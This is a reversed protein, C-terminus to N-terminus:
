FLRTQIRMELCLPKFSRNDTFSTVQYQVSAGIVTRSFSGPIKIDVDLVPSVHFRDFLVEKVEFKSDAIKYKSTSSIIYSGTIGAGIMAKDEFVKKIKLPLTIRDIILSHQKYNPPTQKFVTHNNEITFYGDLSFKSWQYSLGTQFLYNKKLPVDIGLGSQLNFGGDRDIESPLGAAVVSGFSFLYDIEIKNKTQSVSVIQYHLLCVFILLKKM